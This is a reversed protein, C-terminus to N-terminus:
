YLLKHNVRMNEDGSLQNSCEIYILLWDRIYFYDLQYITMLKFSEKCLELKSSNLPWELFCDFSKNMKLKEKWSFTM